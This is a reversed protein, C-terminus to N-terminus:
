FPKTKNKELKPYKRPLIEWKNPLLITWQEHLKEHGTKIADRGRPELPSRKVHRNYFIVSFFSYGSRFFQEAQVMHFTIIM